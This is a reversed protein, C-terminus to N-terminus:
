LAHVLSPRSLYPMSGHTHRSRKGDIFFGDFHEDDLESDAFGGSLGANREVREQAPRSAALPELANRARLWERWADLRTCYICYIGRNCECIGDSFVKDNSAGSVNADGTSGRLPKFSQIIVIKDFCLCRVREQLMCFVRGEGSAPVSVSSRVCRAFGISRALSPECDVSFALCKHLFAVRIINWLCFASM